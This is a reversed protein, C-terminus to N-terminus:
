LGLGRAAAVLAVGIAVAILGLFRRQDRTLRMVLALVQELRLPALALALGEVVLVLGLALLVWTM